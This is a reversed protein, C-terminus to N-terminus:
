LGYLSYDHQSAREAADELDLCVERFDADRAIEAATRKNTGTTKANVNAGAKVLREIISLYGKSAARMLPTWGGEGKDEPNESATELNTGRELLLSVTSGHGHFCAEHLPIWRTHNCISLSAGYDLLAKACSYAGTRAAKALPTYGWGNRVNVNAGSCILERVLDENFRFM